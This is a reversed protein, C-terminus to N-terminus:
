SIPFRGNSFPKTCACQVWARFRIEIGDADSIRLSELGDDTVLHPLGELHHIEWTSHDLVFGTDEPAFPDAMVPILGNPTQLAIAPLGYVAETRQDRVVRGLSEQEQELKYWNYPSVWIASASQDMYQGMLAMIRKSSDTISGEDSGRWGALMVPDDSRDLGMLTTPVGSVGPDSAPIFAQVGSMLADYNGDVYVYDNAVPDSAATTGAVRSVTLVGTVRNIKDVQYIVKVAGGDVRETSGTRTAAFTIRQNKHFGVADRASALTIATAPNSGTVSAVRGINGAGDGWFAQGFQMGIYAIAERSEKQKAKLYAAPDRRSAKIAEADVTVFGYYSKRQLFFKSMTSAKTNAQARVFSAAAGTPVAYNVPVFIGEGDLDDMKAMTKFGPTRRLALNSLDNNAYMRKFMNILAAFTSAPAAM